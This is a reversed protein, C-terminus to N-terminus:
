ARKPVPFGLRLKKAAVRAKRQELTLRAQRVCKREVTKREKKTFSPDARIADHAKKYIEELDDANIGEKKYRSFQRDYAEPDEQKIQEAVKMWQQKKAAITAERDSPNARIREADLWSLSKADYLAKGYKLATESDASGLLGRVWNRYLM